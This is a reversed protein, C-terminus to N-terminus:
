FANKDGYITLFITKLIIKIDSWFNWNEIYEIDYEVRSEMKEKDIEGRYGNVQAWGTIGPKLFHRVMYKSILKRYEETQKIMHPRPGVVSMDGILVNLFQPLEDLNTKRLFRGVNTIRSDYKITPQENSFSNVKMTRFKFCNFEEGNRGSRKQVFFIPGKSSLKIIISIIPILWSLLLVCVVLSFILDFLRKILRNSMLELPEQRFSIVPISHELTLNVKRRFLLNFDPIFKVRISLKEAENVLEQLIENTAPLITSYIEQIDNNKAFELCDNVIGLVHINENSKFKDDFFGVFDYGSEPQSFMKAAASAVKGHGIVVVRRKDYKFFDFKKHLFIIIYRPALLGLFSYFYFFFLTTRSPLIEKELFFWMMIVSIHLVIINFTKNTLPVFFLSVKYYNTLSDLIFWAFNVVLFISLQAKSSIDLLNINTILGSFILSLNIIFFDVMRLGVSLLTNYRLIM